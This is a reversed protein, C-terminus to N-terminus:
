AGGESLASHQARLVHNPQTTLIPDKERTELLFQTVLIYFPNEQIPKIIENLDSYQTWSQFEFYLYIM